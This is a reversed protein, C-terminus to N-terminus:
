FGQVMDCKSPAALYTRLWRRGSSKRKQRLGKLDPHVTVVIGFRARVGVKIRCGRFWIVGQLRLRQPLRPALPPRRRHAAAGGAGASVSAAAPESCGYLVRAKPFIARCLQCRCPICMSSPLHAPCILHLHHCELHVHDEPVSGESTIM